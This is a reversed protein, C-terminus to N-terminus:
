PTWMVISNKMESVFFYLYMELDFFVFTCFGRHWSGKSRSKEGTFLHVKPGGFVMFLFSLHKTKLGLFILPNGEIYIPTELILPVGLDDMKIPNERIFWGNQPVGIKPFAWINITPFPVNQHPLTYLLWGGRGTSGLWGLSLFRHRHCWSSLVQHGQPLRGLKWVFVTVGAPFRGTFCLGLHGGNM